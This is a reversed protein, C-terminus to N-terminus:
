KDVTKRQLTYSSSISLPFLHVAHQSSVIEAEIFVLLLALSVGAALSYLLGQLDADLGTQDVDGVTVGLAFIDQPQGRRVTLVQELSLVSLIHQGPDSDYLLAAIQILLYSAKSLIGKM